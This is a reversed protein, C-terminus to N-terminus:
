TWLKRLSGRIPPDRPSHLWTVDTSSIAALTVTFLVPVFKWVRIFLRYKVSHTCSFHTAPVLGRLLPVSITWEELNTNALYDVTCFCLLTLDCVEKGRLFKILSHEFGIESWVFLINNNWPLKSIMGGCNRPVLLRGFALRNIPRNLLFDFDCWMRDLTTVLPTVNRASSSLCITHWVLWAINFVASSLQCQKLRFHKCLSFM